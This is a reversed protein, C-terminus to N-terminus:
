QRRRRVGMDVVAQRHHVGMDTAPRSPVDSLMHIVAQRLNVETNAKAAM